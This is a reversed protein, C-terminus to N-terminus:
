FPVDDNEEAGAGHAGNTRSACGALPEAAGDIGEDDAGPNAHKTLWAMAEIQEPRMGAKFEALSIARTDSRPLGAVADQFRRAIDDFRGALHASYLWDRVLILCLGWERGRRTIREWEALPYLAVDDGGFAGITFPVLEGNPGIHRLM